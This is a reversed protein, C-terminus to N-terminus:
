KGKIDKKDKSYSQRRESSRGGKPRDKLGTIGVKHYRACTRSRHLDKALQAPVIGGEEVKM